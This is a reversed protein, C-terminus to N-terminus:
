YVSFHLCIKMTRLPFDCLLRKTELGNSELAIAVALQWVGICIGARSHLYVEM